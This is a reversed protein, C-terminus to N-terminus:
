FITDTYTNQPLVTTVPGGGHKITKQYSRASAMTNEESVAM